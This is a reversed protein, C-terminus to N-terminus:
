LLLRASALCAAGVALALLSLRLRQHKNWAIRSTIALQAALQELAESDSLQELAAAIEKSNRLRLDGFYILTPTRKSRGWGLSPVVVSMALVVSVTFAAGMIRVVWLRADTANHLGGNPGLVEHAALTALVLALTLIISAKQDVARTWDQIAQHARWAFDVGKSHDSRNTEEPESM